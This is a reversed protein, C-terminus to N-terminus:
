LRLDYCVCVCIARRFHETKVIAATSYLMRYWKVMKGYVDKVKVYKITQYCIISTNKM